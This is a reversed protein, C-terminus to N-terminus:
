EDKVYATTKRNYTIFLEDGDFKYRKSIEIHGKEILIRDVGMAKWTASDYVVADKYGETYKGGDAFEIWAERDEKEHWKGLLDKQNNGGPILFIVIAIVVLLGVGGLLIGL